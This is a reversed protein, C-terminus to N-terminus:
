AAGAAKLLKELEGASMNSLANELLARKRKQEEQSLRRQNAIDSLAAQLRTKDVCKLLAEVIEPQSVGFNDALQMIHAHAGKDIMLSKRGDSAM